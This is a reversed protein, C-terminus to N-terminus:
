AQGSEVWAHDPEYGLEVLVDGAYHDFVQCAERSFHNLWDGSIGKRVFSQRNETGPNRGTMRKFSFREVINALDRRDVEKGLYHELSDSLVTVPDVLMDEYKIFTTQKSKQRWTQVHQPWPLKVAWRFPDKMEMEIFKPLNQHIDWPDFSKGYLGRIRRYIESYNGLYLVLNRAPNLKNLNDFTEEMRVYNKMTNMYSSVMADRGDRIVYISRDISPHYNWHHHVISPFSQPVPPSPKIFPLNLYSAVQQAVWSTGSKPYGGIYVFGFVDGLNHALWVTINKSWVRAYNHAWVALLKKSSPHTNM